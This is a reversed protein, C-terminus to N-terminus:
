QDSGSSDSQMENERKHMDNHMKDDRMKGEHMQNRMDRMIQQVEPDSMLEKHIQKMKEKDAAMLTLLLKIADPNDYIKQVCDNVDETVVIRNETTDIQEQAFSLFSVIFVLLFFKKM